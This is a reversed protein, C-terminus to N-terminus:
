PRENRSSHKKCVMYRISVIESQCETDEANELDGHGQGNGFLVINAM